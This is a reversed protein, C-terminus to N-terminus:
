ADSARKEEIVNGREKATVERERRCGGHWDLWTCRKLGGKNVTDSALLRGTAVNSRDRGMKTKYPAVRKLSARARGVDRDM